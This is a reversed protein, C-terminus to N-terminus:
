ISYYVLCLRGLRSALPLESPATQTNRNVSSSVRPRSEGLLQLGRAFDQGEEQRVGPGVRRYEQADLPVLLSVVLPPPPYRVHLLEATKDVPEGYYSSAALTLESVAAPVYYNNRLTPTNKIVHQAHAHFRVHPAARAAVASIISPFTASTKSDREQIMDSALTKSRM